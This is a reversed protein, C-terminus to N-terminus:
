GCWENHCVGIAGTTRRDQQQRIVPPDIETLAAEIRTASAAAIRIETEV